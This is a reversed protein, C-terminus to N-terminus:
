SRHGSSPRRWKHAYQEYPISVSKLRNRPWQHRQPFPWPLAPWCAFNEAILAGVNWFYEAPSRISHGCHGFVYRRRPWLISARGFLLTLKWKTQKTDMINELCIRNAWNHLRVVPFSAVFSSGSSSLLISGSSALEYEFGNVMTSSASSSVTFVHEDVLFRESASLFYANKM